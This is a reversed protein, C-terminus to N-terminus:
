ANYKTFLKVVVVERGVSVVVLARGRRMVVEVVVVEVVVVEVEVVVVAGVVLPRGRRTTASLDTSAVVVSSGVVVGVSGVVLPRGRRTTASLGTSVVVACGVVAAKVVASGVSALRRRLLCLHKGAPVSSKNGPAATAGGM